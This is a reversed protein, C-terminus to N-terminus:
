LDESRNEWRNMSIGEKVYRVAARARVLATTAVGTWFRSVNETSCTLCLTWRFFPGSCIAFVRRLYPLTTGECMWFAASARALTHEDDSVQSTQSRSSVDSLSDVSSGGGTSGLGSVGAVLVVRGVEARDGNTGGSEVKVEVGSRSIQLYGCSSQREYSASLRVAPDEGVELSGRLKRTM